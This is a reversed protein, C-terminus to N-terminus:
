EQEQADFVLQRMTAVPLVLKKSTSSLEEFGYNLNLYWDKVEYDLAYLILADLHYKDAAVITQNIIHLLLRRGIERGQSARDVALRDLAIVTAELDANYDNVLEVPDPAVTYYAIITHANLEPVVVWTAGYAESLGFNLLFDNM